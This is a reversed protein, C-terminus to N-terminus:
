SGGDDSPPGLPGFFDEPSDGGYKTFMAQQDPDDVLRAKYTPWIRQTNYVALGLTAAMQDPDALVTGTTNSYGIHHIWAAAHHRRLLEDSERRFAFANGLIRNAHTDSKGRAYSYPDVVYSLAADLLSNPLGMLVDRRFADSALERMMLIQLASGTGGGSSSILCPIITTVGQISLMDIASRLQRIIRHRHFCFALQTLPRTTRAGYAVDSPSLYPALSRLISEAAPGFHKANARLAEVDQGTLTIRITIEAPTTTAPDGDMFAGVQHFPARDATYCRLFHEYARGGIGGVPLNLFGIVRDNVVPEGNRRHPKPPRSPAAHIIKTTM